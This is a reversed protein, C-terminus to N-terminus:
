HSYLWLWADEDRKLRLAIVKGYYSYFGVIYVFDFLPGFSFVMVAMYLVSVKYLLFLFVVYRVIGFIISYAMTAAVVGAKEIFPAPLPALAAGMVIPIMLWTGLETGQYLLSFQGVDYPFLHPCVIFYASAIANIVAVFATWVMIPRPIQHIRPLCIVIAICVIFNILALGPGPFRVPLILYPLYEVIFMHAPWLNVRVPCNLWQLIKASVFAFRDLVHYHGALIILDFVIWLILFTWRSSLSSGKFKKYARHYFIKNKESGLQL